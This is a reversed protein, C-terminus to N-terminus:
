KPTEEEIVTLIFMTDQEKNMMDAAFFLASTSNSSGDIPVLFHKGVKEEKKEKNEEKNVLPKKEEM